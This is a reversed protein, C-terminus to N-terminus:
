GVKQITLFIGDVAPSSESFGDGGFGIFVDSALADRVTAFFRTKPTLLTPSLLDTAYSTFFRQKGKLYPFM